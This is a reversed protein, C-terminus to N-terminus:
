APITETVLYKVIEIDVEEAFPSMKVSIVAHLENNAITDPTNVSDGTDVKFADQPTAGYLAGALFMPLCVSGVLAGNFESLLHGQGDIQRFVFGEGVAAGLAVIQRHMLSNGLNVWRPDTTPNATTRWGYVKIPGFVARVVNIGAANLDQRDGDSYVQTLDLATRLVGNDGAAPENATHGEAM